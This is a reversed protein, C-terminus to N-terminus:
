HINLKCFLYFCITVVLRIENDFVYILETFYSQLSFKLIYLIHFQYECIKCIVSLGNSNTEM